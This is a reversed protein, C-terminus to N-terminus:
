THAMARSARSATTTMQPASEGPKPLALLVLFLPLMLTRQRALIGFNAFGAFAIIFALAYVVAFTVYPNTRMLRPVQRLRSRQRFCLWVLFLGELSQLLLTPSRAEWPFPRFLLTIIAAPVGLPNTLPVPTFSSGGTQTQGSAWDIQDMVSQSSLDDIGLFDASQTTLIAVGGVLILVGFAKSVAGIAQGRVPRFMQAVLMGAVLLVTIHPRVLATGGAGLLLLPWAHPEARFFKAIGLAMAGVWLM